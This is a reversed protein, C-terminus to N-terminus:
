RKLEKYGALQKQDIVFTGAPAPKDVEINSFAFDSINGSSDTIVTRTVRFGKNDVTLIVKANAANSKKPTLELQIGDHKGTPFAVNFDKSLSGSGLFFTVAAPLASTTLDEKRYQTNSPEVMWGVKGDFLYFHRLTKTGKKFFDFRIKGPKAVFLMGATKDVKGVMANTYTQEFTASLHQPKQYTSEVRQLVDAADMDAYAVGTLAILAIAVRIV